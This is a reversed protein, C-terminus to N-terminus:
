PGGGSQDLAGPMPADPLDELVQDEEYQEAPQERVRMLQRLTFRVTSQTIEDNGTGRAPGSAGIADSTAQTVTISVLTLGEFESRETDVEIRWTPSHEAQQDFERRAQERFTGVAPSPDGRLDELSILGAELESLLSSAIDAAQMRKRNRDLNELVSSAASLTLGATTAFIVLSIIVEFLVAGRPCAKIAVHQRCRLCIM